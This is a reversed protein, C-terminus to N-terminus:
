HIRHVRNRAEMLRMLRHVSAISPVDAPRRAL